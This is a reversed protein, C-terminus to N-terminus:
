IWMRLLWVSNLLFVHSRHYNSLKIRLWYRRIIPISYSLFSQVYRGHVVSDYMNANSTWHSSRCHLIEIDFHHEQNAFHYSIINSMTHYCIVWMSGSLFRLFLSNVLLLVHLNKELKNKQFRSIIKILMIWLNISIRLLLKSFLM